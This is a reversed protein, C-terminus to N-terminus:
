QETFRDSKKRGTEKLFHRMVVRNRGRKKAMYLADDAIKIVEGIAGEPDETIIGQAIGISVTTPFFRKSEMEIGRRIKEAIARVSGQDVFSLYVVFEDGGYRGVLDSKRISKKIYDALFRIIRDGGQHGYSDNMDKFRDIDVMMISVNYGHRFALHVLPKVQQFFGRRNVIDTLADTYALHALAKAEKWLRGLVKGLFGMSNTKSPFTSLTHIITNIHEDYATEMKKEKSLPDVFSFLSELTPHLFYFEMQITILLREGNPLHEKESRKLLMLSNERNLELEERIQLADELIQPLMGDQYLELLRNWFGMHFMEDRCLREWFQTLRKSKTSGAFNRYISFATREMELYLTLIEFFQDNKSM